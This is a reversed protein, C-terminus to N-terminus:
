GSYVSNHIKEDPKKILKDYVDDFYVEAFKLVPRINDLFMQAGVFKFDNDIKHKQIRISDITVKYPVMAIAEQEIVKICSRWTKINQSDSSSLYTNEIEDELMQRLIKFHDTLQNADMVFIGSDLLSKFENDIKFCAIRFNKKEAEEMLKKQFDSFLKQSSFSLKSTELQNQAIKAELKGLSMQDKHKIIDDDIQKKYLTLQADSLKIQKETLEQQQKSAEQSSSEQNQAITTNQGFQKNAINKTILIAAIGVATSPIVNILASLIENKMNAIKNLM